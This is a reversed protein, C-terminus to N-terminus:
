NRSAPSWCRWRRQLAQPDGAQPKRPPSSRRSADILATSTQRCSAPSAREFQGATAAGRRPAAGLGRPAPAARGAARWARPNRRAGRVARADLRPERARGRDRRRGAARRPRRRHRGQDPAGYGIITKCAILTPRDTRGPRRSRPAIAAPDHGDIRPVDWGYARFRKSSTTPSPSATPGDISIQNDDLLVILKDLKLHGALSIAEQSIGEMLCGDGAICM